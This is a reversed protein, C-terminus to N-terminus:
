CGKIFIKPRPGFYKEDGTERKEAEPAPYAQWTARWGYQQWRQQVASSIIAGHVQKKKRSLLSWTSTVGVRIVLWLPWLVILVSIAANPLNSPDYLCHYWTGSWWQESFRPIVRYILNIEFYTLVIHICSYPDWLVLKRFRFESVTIQVERDFAGQVLAIM